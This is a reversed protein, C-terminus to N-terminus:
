KNLKTRHRESSATKETQKPGSAVYLDQNSWSGLGQDEVIAGLLHQIFSRARKESGLYLEDVELMRKKIFHYTSKREM